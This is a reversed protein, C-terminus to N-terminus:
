RIKTSSPPHHNKKAMKHICRAGVFISISASAMEEALELDIELYRVTPRKLFKDRIFERHRLIFSALMEEISQESSSKSFSQGQSLQRSMIGSALIRKSLDNWNMISAVHNTVNRIHHIYFADPYADLIHDILDVQPFRPHSWYVEDLQAFANLGTDLLSELPKKGDAVARQIHYAFACHGSSGEGSLIASWTVNSVDTAIAPIPFM